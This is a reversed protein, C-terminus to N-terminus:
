KSPKEKKKTDPKHSAIKGLKEDFAAESEDADLERAAQRFKAIQAAPNSKAKDNM